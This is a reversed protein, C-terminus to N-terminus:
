ESVRGIMVFPNGDKDSIVKGRCNIWTINGSRDIWRYDINHVDTKGEAIERLSAELAPKDAPYVINLMEATTNTESGERRVSYKGDIPGFFWNVDGPIDLLFLFDDTSQSLIELANLYNLIRSDKATDGKKEMHYKADIDIFKEAPIRKYLNKDIVPDTIAHFRNIIVETSDKMDHDIWWRLTEFFTSVLYNVLFETDTESSEKSTDTGIQLHIHKKLEARFHKIIIESNDCNIMDLVNNPNTKLTDFLFYTNTRSDKAPNLISITDSTKKIIFGFVDACLAELLADKASFHSYFTTRGVNAGEIIDRVTIHGYNTTLLLNTFSKYIEKRTKEQRRDM